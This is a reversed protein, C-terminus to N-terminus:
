RAFGVSHRNKKTMKAVMNALESTRAANTAKQGIGLRPCISELVFRFGTSPVLEVPLPTATTAAVYVLAVSEQIAEKLPSMPSVVIACMWQQVAAGPTPVAMGAVGSASRGPNGRPTWVPLENPTSFM